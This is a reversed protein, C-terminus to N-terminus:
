GHEAEIRADIAEVQARTFLTLRQYCPSVVPFNPHDDIRQSAVNGGPNVGARWCARIAAALWPERVAHPHLTVVARADESTVDVVVAGLFQQGKPREDDCFSLWYTRRDDAM